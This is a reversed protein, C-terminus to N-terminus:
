AFAARGAYQLGSDDAAMLLLRNYKAVRESRSLSGTKIQGANVAVALDAITTDETEGSRHSIVTRWGAQQALRVAALTETLTGIQNLKILVANASKEALGRRIRELNTVFLDDGVVQIKSGLRRCLTQWGEWDDEALGDELSVIPYAGVLEEYWDILVDASLARGGVHYQGDRYFETAAPDLAIAMDREPAVGADKMAAVLLDLGQRDDGLNPAFGGEDGVTTSLGRAKLQAKLALFTEAAMRMAEAFTAAGWPVLMFEQIDVTNDAHVGGNLVNLMPVPLVRAAQGGLHRYLPVGVSAAAAQAVALSVGLLTNAGLHSKNDSGDLGVLAEDVGAQDAASWGVLVPAIIRDVHEAAQRVGRGGYRSGGDRLEVAEHRGKSAGSPVRALGVSGDELEVRVALTPTGRSDLIEYARVGRVKDGM